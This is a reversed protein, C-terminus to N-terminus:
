CSVDISMEIVISDSDDEPTRDCKEADKGSSLLSKELVAIVPALPSKNSLRMGILFTDVCTSSVKKM